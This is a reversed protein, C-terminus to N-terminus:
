AALMGAGIWNSLYAAARAAANEEGGHFAVMECLASFTLGRVMEDWMMAEEPQMPRVQVAWEPRFVILPQVEAFDETAPAPAGRSVAQWIAFANTACDLRRTPAAPAFSVGPWDEPALAGLDQLRLRSGDTAVYVDAIARELRALDALVPEARWPSTTGLHTALGASYYSVDPNTSIHAAVYSAAIEQFREPGALAKLVPYGNAIADTLRQRYAHQYVGLLRERAERPSDLIESLVSTDGSLVAAQFAAQLEALPSAPVHHEDGAASGVQALVRGSSGSIFKTDGTMPVGSAISYNCYPQANSPAGPM